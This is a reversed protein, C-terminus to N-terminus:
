EIDFKDKIKDLDHSNKMGDSEIRGLQKNMSAMKEEL